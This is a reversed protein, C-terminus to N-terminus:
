QKWLFLIQDLVVYSHDCGWASFDLYCFAVFGKKEEPCRTWHGPPSLDGSRSLFGRDVSHAGRGRGPSQLSVERSAPHVGIVQSQVVTESWGDAHPSTIWAWAMTHLWFAVGLLVVRRTLQSREWFFVRRGSPLGPVPLSPLCRSQLFRVSLRSPSGMCVSVPRLPLGHPFSLPSGSWQLLKVFLSGESRLSDYFKLRSSYIRGALLRHSSVTKAKMKNEQPPLDGHSTKLNGETPM